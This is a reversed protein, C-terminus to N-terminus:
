RMDRRKCKIFVYSRKMALVTVKNLGNMFNYKM